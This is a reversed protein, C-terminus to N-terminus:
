PQRRLALAWDAVNVGTPGTLFLDGLKAFFPETDHRVLAGRSDLGARRARALTAGDVFAGAARSSGDRGDSGAALLAIGRRGALAGAAGLAFELCRGGRGPRRGFAVTTEGGSLLAHGLPLRLAARAFRAGAERAEGALRRRAIRPRFGLLAAELAAAELGLANWGVVLTVDGRRRRVTPGSGVLSPRDGPVDSLVLTVLRAKTNRGLGGGKVASLSTRLRNLATIPAGRRALRAIARRKQDLSVGPRPLCLLSSAGGSILCLIVDRPGFSKFFALAIRAARVSSADPAPHAAAITQIGGLPRRGGRVVVALRRGPAASAGALMSAAAKGAAFVGVRAADELAASVAPVRLARRVAAAPDVGSLAARYLRLLVRRDPASEM